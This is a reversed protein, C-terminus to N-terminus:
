RFNLAVKLKSLLNNSQAGFVCCLFRLLLFRKRLKIFKLIIQSVKWLCLAPGQWECFGGKKMASAHTASRNVGRVGFRSIRPELRARRTTEKSLSSKEM